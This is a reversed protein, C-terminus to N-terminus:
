NLLDAYEYYLAMAAEIESPSLNAELYAKVELGEEETLGGDALEFLYATDLQNYIDAGIALDDDEIQDRNADIQEQVWTDKVDKESTGTEDGESSQPVCNLNYFDIDGESPVIDTASDITITPATILDPAPQNNTSADPLPTVSIIPTAAQTPERVIAVKRAEELIVSEAKATVPDDVFQTQVAVFPKTQDMETGRTHTDVLSPIALGILFTILIAGLILIVKKM